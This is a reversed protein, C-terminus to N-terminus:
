GPTWYLGGARLKPPEGSKGPQVDLRHITHCHQCQVASDRARIEALSFDSEKCCGPNQCRFTDRITDM